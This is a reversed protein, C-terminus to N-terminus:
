CDIRKAGYLNHLAIELFKVDENDVDITVVLDYGMVDLKAEVILPMFLCDVFESELDKRIGDIFKERAVKDERLRKPLDRFMYVERKM